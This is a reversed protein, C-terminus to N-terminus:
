GSGTMADTFPKWLGARVSTLPRREFPAVWLPASELPAAVPQPGRGGV